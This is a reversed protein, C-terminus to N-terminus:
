VCLIFHGDDLVDSDVTKDTDTLPLYSDTYDIYVTASQVLEEETLNELKDKLEQYTM